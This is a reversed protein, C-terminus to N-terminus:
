DREILLVALRNATETLLQEEVRARERRQQLPELGHSVDGPLTGRLVLADHVHVQCWLASAHAPLGERIAVLEGFRRPKAHRVVPVQALLEHFQAGIQRTQCLRLRLLQGAAVRRARSQPDGRWSSNSSAQGRSNILLCELIQRLFNPKNVPAWRSRWM